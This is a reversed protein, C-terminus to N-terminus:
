QLLGKCSAEIVSTFHNNSTTRNRRWLQEHATTNARGLVKACMTDANDMVVRVDTLIKLIVGCSNRVGLLPTLTVELSRNNPM